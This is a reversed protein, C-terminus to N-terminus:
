KKVRVSGLGLGGNALQLARSAKKALNKSQYGESTGDTLNKITKGVREYKPEQM